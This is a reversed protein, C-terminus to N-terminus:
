KSFTLYKNTCLSKLYFHENFHLAGGNETKVSDILWLGKISQKEEERNLPEFM